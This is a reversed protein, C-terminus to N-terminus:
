QKIMKISQVDHDTQLIVSYVGQNLNRGDIVFEHYGANKLTKETSIVERGILDFVSIEVMQQEALTYTITTTNSFPNPFNQKLSAISSEMQNETLATLIWSIPQKYISNGSILGNAKTVSTAIFLENTSTTAAVVEGPTPIPVWTQFDTSVYSTEGLIFMTFDGSQSIQLHLLNFKEDLFVPIWSLGMDLSYFAGGETAIFSFTNLLLVGNVKLQDGTLGNNGSRWSGFEDNSFYVGGDTALIYTSTDGYDYGAIENIILADGSLGNNAASWPGDLEPGTYFGGGITGVTFDNEELEGGVFYMSVDTSSLGATQAATYSQQDLTFYPGTNTSVFLFPWPGITVNNLNKNGLDGSIDNWSNGLDTTKFIGDGAFGAVVTDAIGTLAVIDTTTTGIPVPTWQGHAIVALFLTIMFLVHKKM